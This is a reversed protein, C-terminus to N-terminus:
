KALGVAQLAEQVKPRAAVRAMFATLVPWKALDIGVWQGWNLVTFLYADAVTFTDGMLYQKGDLKASLWDMKKGANAITKARTEEHMGRDFMSGLV